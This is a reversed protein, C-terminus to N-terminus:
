SQSSQMRSNHPPSTGQPLEGLVVAIRELVRGSGRRRGGEAARRAVRRPAVLGMRELVLSGFGRRRRGRAPEPDAAGSCARVARPLAQRVHTSVTRAPVASLRTCLLSALDAKKTRAPRAITSFRACWERPEAVIGMRSTIGAQRGRGAASELTRLGIDACTTYRILMMRRAQHCTQHRRVQFVEPDTPDM